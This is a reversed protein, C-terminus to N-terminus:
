AFKQRMAEIQSSRVFDWLPYKRKSDHRLAQYIYGYFHGFFRPDKTERLHRLFNRAILPFIYGLRWTEKGYDIMVKDPYHTGQKRTSIMKITERALKLNLAKATWLLYSDETPYEPWGGIRKLASIRLMLTGGAGIIDAQIKSNEELFNAPLIMDDDVRLLFDYNELNISSLEANIAKAIRVGLFPSSFRKSTVIIKQPKLTQSKLSNVTADARFISPIIALIRM